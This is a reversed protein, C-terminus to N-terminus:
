WICRHWVNYTEKIQFLNYYDEEEKWFSYETVDPTGSLVLVQLYAGGIRTDVVKLKFYKGSASIFMYEKNEIISSDYLEISVM